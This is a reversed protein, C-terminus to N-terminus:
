NSNFWKKHIALTRKYYNPQLYMFCMSFMLWAWLSSEGKMDVVYENSFRLVFPVLQVIKNIYYYIIVNIISHIWLILLTVYINEDDHYKPILKDLIFSLIFSFILYITGYQVMELIKHTRIPSTDFLNHIKYELSKNAYKDM